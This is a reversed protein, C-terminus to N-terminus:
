GARRPACRTGRRARSRAQSPRGALHDRTADAVVVAAVRSPGDARGIPVGEASAAGKGQTADRRVAGAVQFRPGVRRGGRVGRGPARLENEEVAFVCLGQWVGHREGAAADDGAGPEGLVGTEDGATGDGDGVRGVVLHGRGGARPGVPADEAALDGLGV